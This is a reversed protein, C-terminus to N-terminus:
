PPHPLIYAVCLHQTCPGAHLPEHGHRMSCAHAIYMYPMRCTGLKCTSSPLCTCSCSLFSHTAAGLLRVGPTHGSSHKTLERAPSAVCISQTGSSSSSGSSSSKNGSNSHLARPLDHDAGHPSRIALHPPARVLCCLMASPNHPHTSPTNVCRINTHVTSLSLTSIPM